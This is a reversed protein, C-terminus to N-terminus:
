STRLFGKVHAFGTTEESISDPSRSAEGCDLVTLPSDVRSNIVKLRQDPTGATDLGSWGPVPTAWRAPGDWRVSIGLDCLLGVLSAITLYPACSGCYADTFASFNDRLTFQMLRASRSTTTELAFVCDSLVAPGRNWVAIKERLPKGVRPVLVSPGLDRSAFRNPPLRRLGKAVEGNQIDTTHIFPIGDVMDNASSLQTPKALYVPVSGRLLGVEQKGVTRTAPVQRSATRGASTKEIHIGVTVATGQSFTGRPFRDAVRVNAVKRILEWAGSDRQSTLASSPLLAMMEGGERLMELATIVFAMARGSSITLGNAVTQWRANGRSSYPPNLLVVDFQQHLESLLHSSGRSDSDLFDCCGRDWDVRSALSDVKAPDCDFALMRARPWQASAATLLAGDGAAPDLVLSPSVQQVLRVLKEAVPAPTFFADLPSM